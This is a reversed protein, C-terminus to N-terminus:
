SRTGEGTCKQAAVWGAVGLAKELEFGHVISYALGGIFADGAGTSEVVDVPFAASRMHQWAKDAGTGRCVAICGKEGLTAVAWKANSAQTQLVATLGQEITAKGRSKCPYHESTVVYDACQLLAVLSADHEPSLVGSRFEAGM